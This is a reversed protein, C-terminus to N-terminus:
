ENQMFKYVETCMMTFAGAGHLDNSVTPRYLYYEELGVGTGVCVGTVSLKDGNIETKSLAGKYGSIIMDKYDDGIIGNNYFKAAAYTILSTCSTELWNRPDDTKDLVQYWMGTERDQYKKLSELLECGIKVSLNYLESNKPAYEIFESLAVVYWSMARGWHVKALGTDKDVFEHQKEDDWMHYLLGTEPNMMRERILKVQTCIKNFMYPKNFKHCYMATFVGMMYMTDLWMQNKNRFKHWVGGYANTPWKEVTDFMKDLMRKYKRYGTTEYLNFLLIGPQIDDFETLDATACNGDEDIHKNVWETIYTRYKEEKSLHYIKEVGNLFVGQHYHFRDAPPLTDPTYQEMVADACMKAYSLATVNDM